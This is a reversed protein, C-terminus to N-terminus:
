MSHLTVSNWCLIFVSVLYDLMFRLLASISLPIYPPIISKQLYDFWFRFLVICFTRTSRRGFAAELHIEHRRGLLPRVLRLKVVVGLEVDVVFNSRADGCVGRAGGRSRYRGWGGYRGRSGGRNRGRTLALALARLVAALPRWPSLFAAAAPKCVRIACWCNAVADRHEWAPRRLLLCALPPWLHRDLFARHRAVIGGMLDSSNVHVRDLHRSCPEFFIWYHKGDNLIVITHKM